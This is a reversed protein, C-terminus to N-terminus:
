KRDMVSIKGAIFRDDLYETLMTVQETYLSLKGRRAAIQASSHYDSLRARGSFNPCREITGRRLCLGKRRSIHRRQVCTRICHWNM